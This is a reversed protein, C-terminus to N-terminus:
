KTVFLINSFDLFEKIFKLQEENINKNKNENINNKDDKKDENKNNDKKIENMYTNRMLLEEKNEIKNDKWNSPSKFVNNNSFLKKEYLELQNMYYNNINIDNKKLKVFELSKKL